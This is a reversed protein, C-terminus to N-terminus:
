PYAPTLFPNQTSIYSPMKKSEDYKKVVETVKKPKAKQAQLNADTISSIYPNDEEEKPTEVVREEVDENKYVRKDEMKKNEGTNEVSEEQTVAEKIASQSFGKDIPSDPFSPLSPKEEASFEDDMNEGKDANLQPVLEKSFPSKLPPLDPLSKGEDKKNWFM